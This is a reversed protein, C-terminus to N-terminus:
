KALNIEYPHLYKYQGKRKLFLDQKEETLSLLEGLYMELYCENIKGSSHTASEICLSFLRDTM